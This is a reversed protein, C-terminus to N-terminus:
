LKWGVAFLVPALTDTFRSRSRDFKEFYKKNRLAFKLIKPELGRPMVFPVWIGIGTIFCDVLGTQRMASLYQKKSYSNEFHPFNRRSNKIMGKFKRDRLHVLVGMVFNWVHAVSWLSFKRPIITHVSLGGKKLVRTMAQFPHMIDEFHEMLGYSMVVDFYNEKFPLQQVDGLHLFSRIKEKRFNNNALRLAERSNDICIAQAGRKALYVSVRAGGCGCELTKFSQLVDIKSSITEYTLEYLMNLVFDTRNNINKDEYTVEHNRYDRDWEQIINGKPQEVM